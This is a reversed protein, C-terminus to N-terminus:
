APAYSGSEAAERLIVAAQDCAAADVDLHTVARVTRPGFAIVLAADAGLPDACPPTERLLLLAGLGVGGVLARLVADDLPVARADGRTLDIRLYRGFCGGRM